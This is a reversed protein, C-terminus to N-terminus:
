TVVTQADFRILYLAPDSSVEEAAGTMSQLWEDGALLVETYTTLDLWDPAVRVVPLAGNITQPGHDAWFRELAANPDGTVVSAESAFDSDNAMWQHVRAGMVPEIQLVRQHWVSSYVDVSPRGSVSQSKAITRTGHSEDRMLYELPLWIYRVQYIGDFVLVTGSPTVWETEGGTYADQSAGLVSGGGLDFDFQTLTKSLGTRTIRIRRSLGLVAYGVIWDATGDGTAAQDASTLAASLVEFFGGVSGDLFYTGAAVSATFSTGSLTVDVKWTGDANVVTSPTFSMSFQPKTLTAM